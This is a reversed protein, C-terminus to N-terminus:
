KNYKAIDKLIQERIQMVSSTFTENAKVPLTKFFKNVGYRSKRQINSSKGIYTGLLEGKKTYLSIKLDSITVNKAIPMGLFWTYIGVISVASILGYTTLRHIGKFKIVEGILVYDVDATDKGIKSFVKNNSFDKIIADEIANPIKGYFHPRNTISLLDLKLSNTDKPPRADIFDKVFVKKNILFPAMQLDVNPKYDLAEIPKCSTFVITFNIIILFLKFHEISKKKM